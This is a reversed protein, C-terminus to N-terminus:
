QGVMQDLSRDLGDLCAGADNLLVDRERPCVAAQVSGERKLRMFQATIHKLFAQRMM